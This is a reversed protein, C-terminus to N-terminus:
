SRNSDAEGVSLLRVLAKRALEADAEARALDERVIRRYGDMDRGLSRVREILRRAELESPSRGERMAAM